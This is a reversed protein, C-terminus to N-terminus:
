FRRNVQVAFVHTSADFVGALVGGDEGIRTIGGKDTRIYSYAVDFSLGNGTKFSLGTALTFREGDPFVPTREVERDISRVYNTGLYFDMQDSFQYSGGISFKWNNHWGFDLTIDEAGNDRELNVVDLKSWEMWTIDTFMTFRDTLDQAMSLSFLQPLKLAGSVNSNSTVPTMSLIGFPGPLLPNEFSVTGDLDYDIASRYTIGLRTTPFLEALLGLNFGIGWDSATLIAEGDAGQPFVGATSCPTFGVTAACLGGFDINRTLEAEFYQASIGAGLSIRDSLQWSIVPNIEVSKAENFISQYRGIWDDPYDIKLAYPVFVGIGIAVNDSIKSYAATSPIAGLLGVDSSTSGSYPGFPSVSGSDTFGLKYDILIANISIGTGEKHVLGAPNTIAMMADTDMVSAGANATAVQAASQELFRFGSAYVSTTITFTVLSCTIFSLWHWHKFFGGVRQKSMVCEAENVYSTPM